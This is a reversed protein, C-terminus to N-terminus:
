GKHCQDRESNVPPPVQIYPLKLRHHPCSSPRTEAGSRWRGTKERKDGLGVGWFSQGLDQKRESKRQPTIRRPKRYRTIENDSLQEDPVKLKLHSYLVPRGRLILHADQISGAFNQNSSQKSKEVLSVSLCFYLQSLFRARSLCSTKYSPCRVNECIHHYLVPFPM